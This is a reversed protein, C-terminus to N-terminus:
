FYIIHCAIYLVPNAREKKRKKRKQATEREDKDIM